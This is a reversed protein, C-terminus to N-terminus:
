FVKQVPNNLDVVIIRGAREVVYLHDPDNPASRVAVPRDFKLAGTFLDTLTPDGTAAGVPEAPFQMTSNSQRVLQASACVLSAASILITKLQNRNIMTPFCNSCSTISM